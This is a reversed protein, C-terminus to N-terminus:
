VERSRSPTNRNIHALVENVKNEGGPKSMMELRSDKM